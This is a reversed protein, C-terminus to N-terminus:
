ICVIIIFYKLYVRNYYNIEDIGDCPDVCIIHFTVPIPDFSFQFVHFSTVPM